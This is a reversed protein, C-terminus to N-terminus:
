RTVSITASQESDCAGVTIRSNADQNIYYDTNAVTGTSPDQPIGVIYTPVLDSSLNLCVPVASIASCTADCGSGASGLVQSSGTNGDIGSPLSGNNDIAYQYVANLITNVDSNRQANRAQGLQRNPNIAVIVIGALIAIAAVVLLIEL